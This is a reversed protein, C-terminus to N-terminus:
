GTCSTSSQQPARRMSHAPEVAPLAQDKCCGDNASRVALLAMGPVRWGYLQLRPLKYQAAGHLQWMTKTAAMYTPM